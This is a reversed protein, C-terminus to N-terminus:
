KIKELQNNIKDSENPKRTEIANWESEMILYKCNDCEHIYTAFPHGDTYTVYAVQGSGCEPCVIQDVSIIKTAM